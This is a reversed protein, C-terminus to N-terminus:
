AGASLWGDNLVWGGVVRVRAWGGPAWQAWGQARLELEDVRVQAEEVDAEVELVHLPELLHPALRDASGVPPWCSTGRSRTPEPRGTWGGDKEVRHGHTREREAQTGLGM